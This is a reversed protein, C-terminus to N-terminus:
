EGRTGMIQIRAQGGILRPKKQRQPQIEPWLAAQHSASSKLDDSDTALEGRAVFRHIVTARDTTLGPLRPAAIGLPRKQGSGESLRLPKGTGFSELFRGVISGHRYSGSM